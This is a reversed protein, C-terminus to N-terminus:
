LMTLYPVGTNLCPNTAYEFFLLQVSKLRCSTAQTPNQTTLMPPGQDLKAPLETFRARSLGINFTLHTLYPLYPLTLYPVSTPVLSRHLMDGGGRRWAQNTSYDGWLDQCPGGDRGCALCTKLHVRVVRTSRTRPRGM